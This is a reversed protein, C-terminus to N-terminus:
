IEHAFEIQLTWNYILLQPFIIWQVRGHLKFSSDLPKYYVCSLTNIIYKLTLIAKPIKVELFTWFDCFKTSSLAM